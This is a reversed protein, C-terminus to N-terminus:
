VTFKYGLSFMVVDSAPTVVSVYQTSSAPSYSTGGMFHMWSVAATWEEAFNYTVGAGFVPRWEQILVKPGGTAVPIGQFIFTGYKYSVGAKFFADFSQTLPAVLKFVGWAAGTNHLELGTPFGPRGGGPPFTEVFQPLYTWGLELGIYQNFMYGFDGGYVLGGSAGDGQPGGTPRSVPVGVPSFANGTQNTYDQFAYGISGEVYFYSEVPAPAAMKDPGGAMTAATAGVSAVGAATLILLKKVSM